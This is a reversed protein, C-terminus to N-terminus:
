NTSFSAAVNSRVLTGIVIIDFAFDFANSVSGDYSFNAQDLIGDVYLKVNGLDDVWAIHHWNSDFVTNSSVVHNILTGSPRLIVDLKNSNAAANGTQIIFIPTANGSSAEAFLYKATQPVGKVWMTITYGVDHRYAPLGTNDPRATHINTFYTSTGNLQMANSFQGSSNTNAVVVAPGSFSMTNTFSLDPTTTGNTADMPWYSILGDTIAGRTAVLSAFLIALPFLRTIRKM